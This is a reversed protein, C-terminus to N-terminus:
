KKKIDDILSKLIAMVNKGREKAIRHADEVLNAAQAELNGIPPPEVGIKQYKWALLRMALRKEQEKFFGM